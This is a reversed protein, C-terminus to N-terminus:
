EASLAMVQQALRAETAQILDSPIKQGNTLYSIPLSSSQLCPFFSGLGGSEDLRTLIMRNPKLQEFAQEYHMFSRTNTTSSVVLHTETPVTIELLQSLRDMTESDSPSCGSTDILVIRCDSLEQMCTSVQELSEAVEFRWGLVEAYNQLLFNSGLRVTDTSLVGVALGHEISLNAAIKALSTTKGAGCPGVFALVRQRSGEISIPPAAHVIDRIWGLLESRLSWVDQTVTPNSTQKAAEIWQGAIGPDIGAEILEQHVQRFVGDAFKIEIPGVSMKDSSPRLETRNATVDNDSANAITKESTDRMSDANSTEITATSEIVQSKLEISDLGNPDSPHEATTSSATVEIRSRGFIGYRAPKTELISADPGFELRVQQYADQLTKSRFTKIRIPSNM